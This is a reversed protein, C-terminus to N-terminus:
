KNNKKELLLRCVLHDPSQLESTQEESRGDARGGLGHLEWQLGRPTQSQSRKRFGHIWPGRCRRDDPGQGLVSVSVGRLDPHRRGLERGCGRGDIWREAERDGVRRRGGRPRTVHLVDGGGDGRGECADQEDNRREKSTTDHILTEPRRQRAVLRWNREAGRARHPQSDRRRSRRGKSMRRAAKPCGTWWSRIPSRSCSPDSSSGSAA